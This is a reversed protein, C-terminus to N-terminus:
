GIDMRIMTSLVSGLNIENPISIHRALSNSDLRGQLYFHVTLHLQFHNPLAELSIGGKKGARRGIAQIHIPHSSSSCGNQTHTFWLEIDTLPLPLQLLPGSFYM